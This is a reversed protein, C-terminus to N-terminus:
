ATPHRPLHNPIPLMKADIAEFGGEDYLAQVEEITIMQSAEYPGSKLRRLSTVYSGCGLEKGIDDVLNRIYTGKSSHVELTIQDNQWDILKLEYITVTRPKREVEIGQRALKYLPKGKYKLASYMSPIQEIKGRFKALAQNLLQATIHEISKKEIVPGESDCTTTREGLKATVFYYKDADLLAQSCKTAKGFCIPLLGTALVDLSGTHGAKKANFIRKIKQLAQNSSLGIPKDIILMGDVQRPNNKIM